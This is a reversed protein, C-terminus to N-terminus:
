INSRFLKRTYPIKVQGGGDKLITSLELVYTYTCISTCENFYHVYFSLIFEGTYAKGNGQSELFLFCQPITEIIITEDYDIVCSAFMHSNCFNELSGTQVLYFLALLTLLHHHELLFLQITLIQVIFLYPPTENLFLCMLITCYPVIYSDTRYLSECVGQEGM